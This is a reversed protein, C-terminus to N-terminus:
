ALPKAAGVTSYLIQLNDALGTKLLSDRVQDVMEASVRLESRVLSEREIKNEEPRIETLKSTVAGSVGMRLCIEELKDLDDEESFISIECNDEPLFARNIKRQAETDLRKRWDTGMKLTDIAAIIQDISAAYNQKGIKMRTDILGVTVPTQYIYGKGPRDLKSEEILLRIVSDSDQRPILLHVVEKEPSITIRILGLQDRIDNGMGYTLLPVCIGLDLATRALQEGSEHGSLVCVVYSLDKLFHVREKPKSDQSIQDNVLSLPAKCYELIDQSFITGRGPITLEAISILGAIVGKAEKRPVTFRFISALNSQLKVSTGPIGFPKPKIFERITRGNEMYAIAGIRNLYETVKNGSDQNVICTIRSVERLTHIVNEKHKNQESQTTNTM